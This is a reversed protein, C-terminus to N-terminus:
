CKFLKQWFTKPKPEPKRKLQNELMGTKAKQFFEKIISYKENEEKLIKNANILEDNIQEITVNHYYVDQIRAGYRICLPKKDRISREIMKFNDYEETTITVQGM